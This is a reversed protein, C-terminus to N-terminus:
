SVTAPPFPSVLNEGRVIARPATRAVWAMHPALANVGALIDLAASLEVPRGVTSSHSDSGPVHIVGAQAMALM